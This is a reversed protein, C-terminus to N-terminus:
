NLFRRLNNHIKTIGRVKNKTGAQITSKTGLMQRKPKKKKKKSNLKWMIIYQETPEMCQECSGCSRKEVFSENFIPEVISNM